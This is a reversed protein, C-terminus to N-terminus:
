LRKASRLGTAYFGNGDLRATGGKDGFTPGNAEERSSIFRPHGDTDLGMYIGTHDLRLGTRRDIEFFVLDGPQLKDINTPRHNYVLPLVKVGPGVTAMGNATRPLGDGKVDQSLLPYRARFGYVMRVFGSCDLARYKEAEPALTRGDRFPYTVGLYDYFDSQEKRYDGAISGAPDIPGFIADGIYPLGAPNKKTKAGDEYDMAMAFVDQSTDGLAKAFWDTFWKEKEAGKKWPEPMLRVWTDTVVKASTFRPETFTRSPGTLNATRAGDTLTALVNGRGDRIVTRDPGALREYRRPGGTPSAAAATPATALDPVAAPTGPRDERLQVTLYASAGLLGAAVITNLAMRARRNRKRAM